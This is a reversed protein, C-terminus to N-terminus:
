EAYQLLKRMDCYRYTTTKKDLSLSKSFMINEDSLMFIRGPLTNNAANHLTNYRNFDKMLTEIAAINTAVGSDFAVDFIEGDDVRVKVNKVTGIENSIKLSDTTFAISSVQRFLKASALNEFRSDLKLAGIGYFNRPKDACALVTFVLLYIGAKRM